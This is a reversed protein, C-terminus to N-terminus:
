RWEPRHRWRFNELLVHRHRPSLPHKAGVSEEQEPTFTGCSPIWATGPALLASGNPTSANRKTLKFLRRETCALAPRARAHRPIMMNYTITTREFKNRWTQAVGDMEWPKKGAFVKRVIPYGGYPRVLNM